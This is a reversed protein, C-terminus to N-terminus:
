GSIFPPNCENHTFILRVKDDKQSIKRQQNVLGRRSKSKAKEFKESILKNPYNRELLKKRLNELHQEGWESKSCRELIRLAQGYVLGEKCPQPHNSFYDLYLQLNSPKIYLNTELKGNELMIKLDLFEVGEKSFDHKFKIVGPYLSNLWSVFSECEEESGEFLM